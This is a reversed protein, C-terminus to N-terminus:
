QKWKPIKKPPGDSAQESIQSQNAQKGKKKVNFPRSFEQGFGKDRDDVMGEVKRKEKM